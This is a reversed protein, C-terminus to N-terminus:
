KIINLILFSVMHLYFVLLSKNKFMMDKGMPINFLTTFLILLLPDYYKHYITYQPNAIILLVFLILNRKDIKILEFIIVFSLFCIM